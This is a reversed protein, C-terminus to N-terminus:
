INIKREKYKWIFGYAYKYRKGNCCNTITGRDFGFQREVEMTSPFEAIVENTNKDIQLVTKSLKINPVGKKAETMRKNRTGWNSNEKPTMLNLNELRNDDKKENIHNCQMGDPIEGVFTEYVLRHVMFIKGKRNKYLTVTLYGKRNKQPKLMKEKGTGKYDLSKVNGLNSVQYNPYDEITKWQEKMIRISKM